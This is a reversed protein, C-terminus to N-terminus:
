KIRELLKPMLEQKVWLFNPETNLAKEYYVKAKEYQKIDEYSQGILTLLNLYNWNNTISEADKEMLIVAELFHEISITKSGGFVAPMYFYAIGYQVHGFAIKNNAQLSHNVHDICRPGYFPAKIPSFGIKFGWFASRYAHIIAPSYGKKEVIELNEEALALYHKAMKKNNEGLCYGIYGYQYNILEALFEKDEEKDNEMKDIVMKWNEMKNGIFAHYIKIKNSSGYVSTVALFVLLFIIITNKPREM